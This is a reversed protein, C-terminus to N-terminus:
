QRVHLSFNNIIYDTTELFFFLPIYSINQHRNQQESATKLVQISNPFIKELSM